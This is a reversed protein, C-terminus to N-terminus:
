HPTTTGRTKNTLRPPPHFYRKYIKKLVVVLVFPITVSLWGWITITALPLFPIYWKDRIETLKEINMLNHGSNVIIYASAFYAMLFVGVTLGVGAAFYLRQKRM